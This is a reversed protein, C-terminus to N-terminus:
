YVKSKVQCEYQVSAILENDILVGRVRDITSPAPRSLPSTMLDKILIMLYDSDIAILDQQNKTKQDYVKRVKFLALFTTFKTLVKKFLNHKLLFSM